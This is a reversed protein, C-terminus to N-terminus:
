WPYDRAEVMAVVASSAFVGQVLDTLLARETATSDTPVKYGDGTFTLTRIVTTDGTDADTQEVPLGMHVKVSSRSRDRAEFFRLVLYPQGRLTVAGSDRCVYEARDQSAAKAPSFTYTTANRDVLIIDSIQPM